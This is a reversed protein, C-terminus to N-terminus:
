NGEESHKPLKLKEDEEAEKDEQRKALISSIDPPDSYINDPRVDERTGGPDFGTLDGHRIGAYLSLDTDGPNARVGHTLQVTTTFNKQGNGSISCNHTVSEIHLVVGDWELNDGPPIPAQIGITTVTGTMTLCQSMVTDALLEMWRTPDGSRTEQASCSITQFWGRLGNRAIDLDDRLPPHDVIQETLYSGTASNVPQGYVHVFNFRLADSRGLDASRVLISPIKWRPLDLFKTVPLSGKYLESTFPLQRVILTPVVKGDANVRLCTYIENSAPNLYQNLVSWVPQNTFQPAAPVFNGMMPVGTFKRTDSSGLTNDPGFIDTSRGRSGSNSYSQIGIIVDLLDVFAISGHEKAKAQRGLVKGVADPIMFGYPADLGATSRTRPDDGGRGLNQSVGKGLLIDLFAPIAKNVDIGEGKENIIETLSAGYRKFISALGPIREELGPEYFLQTDFQTFGAATMTFRVTKVGDGGVSLNKRMSQVQGMFKLGQDFDNCAEAKGLSKLVKSYTAEDNMMWAFVYDGPMIENLYNAEGRLLTASLSSIHNSKTSTTSLQICDSTIILRGRIDVADPFFNSFSGNGSGDNRVGSVPDISSDLSKRNYTTPYKFQIVLMIWYPSVSVSDLTQDTDTQTKGAFDQGVDYVGM